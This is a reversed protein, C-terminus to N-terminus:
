LLQESRQEEKPIFKRPRMLNTLPSILGEFLLSYRLNQICTFTVKSGKACFLLIEPRSHGQTNTNTNWMIVLNETPLQM